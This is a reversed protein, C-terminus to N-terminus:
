ARQEKAEPRRPSAEDVCVAPSVRDCTLGARAYVRHVLQESGAEFLCLLSEDGPLITSRVLRVAAGEARLRGAAAQVHAAFAELGDRDLGPQYHEVLFTTSVEDATM